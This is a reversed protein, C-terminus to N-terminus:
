AARPRDEGPEAASGERDTEGGPPGEGRILRLHRKPAAHRGKEPAAEFLRDEIRDVILLLVSLFPLLLVAIWVM